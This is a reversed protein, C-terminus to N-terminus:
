ALYGWARLQDLILDAAEIPEAVVTRPPTRDVLAGTISLVRERPSLALDPPPLARARPRDPGRHTTTVRSPPASPGLVSLIATEKAGLLAALPARRLEATGGEFSLVTPRDVILVERRGHDLRRTVTLATSDTDNPTREDNPHRDREGVTLGVLGLAQGWGLHAAVFAPVSGSGRDISWDGACVLSPEDLTRIETALAAAVHASTASSPLDIRTAADAGAALAERLLADAHAPGATLVAVDDGRQNALRLAWELAAQDAASCGFFRADHHVAGTLRDVEPRLDVWKLLVVITSM